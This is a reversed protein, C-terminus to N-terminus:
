NFLVNAQQAINDAVLKLLDAIAKFQERASSVQDAEEMAAQQAAKEVWQYEMMDIGAEDAQYQYGEPTAKSVMTYSETVVQSFAMGTLAGGMKAGAASAGMGGAVGAAVVSVAFKCIADNREAELKEESKEINKLGAKAEDVQREFKLEQRMEREKNIGRMARMLLATEILGGSLVSELQSSHLKNALESPASSFRINNITDPLPQANGFPQIQTHLQNPTTIPTGDGGQIHGNRVAYESNPFLLLNVQEENITKQKDGQKLIYEGSESAYSIHPRSSSSAVSMSSM